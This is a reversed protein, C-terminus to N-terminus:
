ELIKDAFIFGENTDILYVAILECVLAHVDM